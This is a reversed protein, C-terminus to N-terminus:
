LSSYGYAFTNSVCIDSEIKQCDNNPVVVLDEVPKLLKLPIQLFLV